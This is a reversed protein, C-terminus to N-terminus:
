HTQEDEQDEQDNNTDLNRYGTLWVAPNQLLVTKAELTILAQDADSLASYFQKLVEQSHSLVGEM